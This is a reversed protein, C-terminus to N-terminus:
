DKGLSRTGRNGNERTLENALWLRAMKSKRKVSDISTGMTAATKEISFGGFYRLEFIKSTVPSLSALRSLAQDVAIVLTPDPETSGKIMEDLSVRVLGGGRMDANHKRAADVLLRRMATAAVRFFHQRDLFRVRRYGKILRLYLENILEGTQLTHGDRERRLYLRALKRLENEVLPVLREFASEDGHQWRLLLDTIAEPSSEDM